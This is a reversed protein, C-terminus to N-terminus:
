QSEKQAAEIMARCVDKPDVGSGSHWAAIRVARAMAETPEAMAALVADAARLCFPEYRENPIIEARIARAIKERMTM